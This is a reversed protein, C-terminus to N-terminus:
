FSAEILDKNIVAGTKSGSAIAVSVARFFNTNDGAAYVGKVTTRNFDDIKIFGTETEECGLAHPLDCHLTFAPRAFLADLSRDSGDQFVVHSLQGKQHDFSAIEKEEVSITHEKLKNIQEPSLTSIGNTFLTLNKSWHSILKAVEFGVDGNGLVGLAKNRVEYGHCYPCHLVSIGWSEAFGEIPPMLDTIGTAFLLAKASFTDGEKTELTFLEKEKSAKIAEGQKFHLTPYNLLQEKSKQLLSAPTDGDHMLLNHSHPTQRNCPKGSDLILVKRFSRGLAMAASLGAYSGGIIIVEFDTTTSM